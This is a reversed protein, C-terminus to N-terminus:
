HWCSVILFLLDARQRRQQFYIRVNSNLAAQSLPKQGVKDIKLAGSSDSVKYLVVQADYNREFESDDGGASADRLTTRSGGGLEKFFNAVDEPSSNEDSLLNPNSLTGVGSSCFSM